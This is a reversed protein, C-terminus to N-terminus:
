TPGCRMCRRMSEAGVCWLPIGKLLLGYSMTETLRRLPLHLSGSAIYPSERLKQWIVSYPKGPGGQPELQLHPLPPVGQHSAECRTKEPETLLRLLCLRTVHFQTSPDPCTDPHSCLTPASRTNSHTLVSPHLLWTNAIHLSILWM